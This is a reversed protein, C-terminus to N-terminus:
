LSYLHLTYISIEWLHHQLTTSFFNFFFICSRDPRRTMSEVELNTLDFRNLQLLISLIEMIISHTCFCVCYFYTKMKYKVCCFRIKIAYKKIREIVIFIHKWQISFTNQSCFLKLACPIYIAFSTDITIWMIFPGM